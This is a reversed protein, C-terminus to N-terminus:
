LIVMEILNAIGERFLLSIEDAKHHPVATQPSDHPLRCEQV